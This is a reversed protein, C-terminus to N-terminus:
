AHGGDICEIVDTNEAINFYKNKESDWRYALGYGENETTAIYLTNPKGVNPFELHSAAEVIIPDEEEYGPLPEISQDPQVIHPIYKGDIMISLIQGECKNQLVWREAEDMSGFKKRHHYTRLNGYPDYFRIEESDTTLIITGKPIVGGVIATAINGEPGFALRYPM